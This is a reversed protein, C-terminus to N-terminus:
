YLRVLKWPGNPSNLRLLGAVARLGMLMALGLWVGPLGLFRSTLLVLSSVSGVVIMSYAAYKFDSVGYHLGDFVFALSNLPQTGAVFLAGKFLVELVAPDKTFLKSIPPLSIFLIAALSFGFCLGMQLVGYAVQKVRKFDGKAYANAIIAQGALALADSLLSTALWIQYLIQHGAMAVPGQRAAMSTALTMTFLVAMTRGLLFGGSKMFKNLPFSSTALPILQVESNLRFLLLFALIYQATVTAVAAGIVGFGCTFILVPSLLINCVNSITVAYLPTKTDKFGRFIGQAALSFVNAPAGLARIALYVTAPKRMLSGTPVNMLTLIVPVGLLLLASEVLALMLALFLASTVAPVVRKGARLNMSSGEHLAADEAVFSTTTSLLPVNFIKAVLNFVQISVGVAALEVSGLRGVYATEMLQAVPEIAQTLVAPMALSWVEHGFTNYWYSRESSNNVESSSVFLPDGKGEDAILIDGGSKCKLLFNHPIAHKERVTYTRCFSHRWEHMHWRRKIGLSKQLDFHRTQLGYLAGAVQIRSKGQLACLGLNDLSQAM